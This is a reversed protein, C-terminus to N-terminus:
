TAGSKAKRMGLVHFIIVAETQKAKSEKTGNKKAQAKESQANKKQTKKTKASDDVINVGKSPETQPTKAQLTTGLVGFTALLVLASARQLPPLRRQGTKGKPM